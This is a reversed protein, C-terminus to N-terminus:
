TAQKRTKSHRHSFFVLYLLIVICSRSICFLVRKYKIYKIWIFMTESITNRPNYATGLRHLRAQRLMVSIAATQHGPLACFSQIGSNLVAYPPANPKDWVQGTLSERHSWYHLLVNCHTHIAYRVWVVYSQVIVCGLGTHSYCSGLDRNFLDQVRYAPGPGPLCTRSGTLLDQVRYAPGPGPQAPGPQAPGPGPPGLGRKNWCWSYEGGCFITVM